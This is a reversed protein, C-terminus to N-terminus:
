STSEYLGERPGYRFMENREARSEEYDPWQGRVWRVELREREGATRADFGEWEEMKLMEEEYDQQLWPDEWGRPSDSHETPEEGFIPAANHWHEQWDSDQEYYDYDDEDWDAAPRSLYVHMDVGKKAFSLQLGTAQLWPCTRGTDSVFVNKLNPFRGDEHCHQNLTYLWGHKDVREYAWHNAARCTGHHRWDRTLFLDQPGFDIELSRLSSPLLALLHDRTYNKAPLGVLFHSPLQLDKLSHFSNIDLYPTHNDQPTSQFDDNIRGACAFYFGTLALKLTTLSRRFPELAASFASVTPAQACSPPYGTHNYILTRLSSPWSLVQLLQRETLSATLILHLVGSRRFRVEPGVFWSDADTTELTTVELTLLNPLFFIEPLMRVGVLQTLRLETLAEMQPSLPLFTLRSERSDRYFRQPALIHLGRLRPFMSIYTNVSEHDESTDDYEDWTVELFYTCLCLIPADQLTRSLAAM